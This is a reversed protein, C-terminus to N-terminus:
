RRTALVLACPWTFRRVVGEGGMAEDLEAFLGDIEVDGEEGIAGRFGPFLVRFYERLGGIDWERAWFGSDEVVEMKEGEAVNSEPEIEYGCAEQGFFPLTGHTNWKYRRVDTWVGADFPLFDLWSEMADACRKFGRARRPGSDRIVKRWKLAMIKDVLPQAHAFLARDSFTPRGYFWAALTGGPKLVRAFSQLGADRDMLVVAEAAAIMDASAPAHHSSLDEAKAYTYSIRPEPYDPSLRNKAVTVHASDIDSAVVHDYKKALQAAVQGAGCGVDHAIDHSSSHAAHYDHIIKYFPESYNPRTSVYADWFEHDDADVKWFDESDDQPTSSPNTDQAPDM